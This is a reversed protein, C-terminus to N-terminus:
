LMRMMRKCAALDDDDDDDDDNDDNDNGNGNSPLWLFSTILKNDFDHRSNGPVPGLVTSSSPLRPM